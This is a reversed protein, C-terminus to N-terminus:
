AIDPSPRINRLRNRAIVMRHVESPGEVIRWLRVLRYFYEIPMEKAVGVGGHAQMTHDAIEGVLETALLKVMSAEYRIDRVGQDMKWAANYCALRVAHIQATADAVWWQIAQRSSLLQGFTSHANAQDVLLQLLREAAGLSRMAIEVRRVGFRNQLEPFAWGVRGLVQSDTVSVDELMIECPREAVMTAIRREITMGPTNRDVLFATIGGRPGLDKDTRALVIIFDAWDARNIFMKRGNIVWGGKSRQARTQIASADSGVNPETVAICSSIEGRAYPELYRARQEPTCVALMWHLNPSDPPLIFPVLSRSIEETVVMKGLVGIEKGGFEAPVDLAWLDRQRAKEALERYTAAPLVGDPDFVYHEGAAPRFPTVDLGRRMENEIVAREQPILEQETFERAAQQMMRLEYPLSFDM